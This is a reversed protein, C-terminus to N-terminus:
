KHLHQYLITAGVGILVLGGLMEARKGILTGLKHGAVIGLTAMAFVCLGITPAVLAISAHMFALGIGIALADISTALSALIWTVVNGTHAPTEKEADEDHLANWIMHAGLALLLVFAIWDASRELFHSAAGGIFWGVLATLGEMCGFFAGIRLADRLRPKDMSAGKGLAVAFTDTSMALGLLLTSLPNM